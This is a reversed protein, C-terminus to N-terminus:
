KEIDEIAKKYADSRSAWNKAMKILDAKRGPFANLADKLYLVETLEQPTM